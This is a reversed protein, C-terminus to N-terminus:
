FQLLKLFKKVKIAALHLLTEGKHNRKLVAPSGSSPRGVPSAPIGPSKPSGSEKRSTKSSKDSRPSSLRNIVALSIRGPSKRRRSPSARPRKPTNELPCTKAETRNRKSPNEPPSSHEQKEPSDNPHSDNASLKKNLTRQGPQTQDNSANIRSQSLSDKTTSSAPHLENTNGHSAELQSVDSTVPSLFSVRKSSRREGDACPRELKSPVTEEETIGWQQNIAELKQKKINQKTQRLTARTAKQVQKSTATKKSRKKGKKNVSTCKQSSSSSDQSSSTFNFVSMNQCLATTTSLQAAAVEASKSDPVDVESPKEVRCRM